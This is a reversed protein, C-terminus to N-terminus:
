SKCSSKMNIRSDFNLQPSPHSCPRSHLFGVLLWQVSAFVLWLIAFIWSRTFECWGISSSINLVFESIIVAPMDLMFLIQFWADEYAFHFDHGAIYIWGAGHSSRCEGRFRVFPIFRYLVLFLHVFVFARGLESTAVRKGLRLVKDGNM